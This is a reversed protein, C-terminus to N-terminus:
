LDGSVRLISRREKGVPPWFDSYAGGLCISLKFWIPVVSSSHISEELKGCQELELIIKEELNKWTEGM